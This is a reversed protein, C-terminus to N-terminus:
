AIPEAHFRRNRPDEYEQRCAPCMAFEAMTTRLRDYPAARIITLRPGCNTCNNFAYRYRRDLPDFLEALCDACTAVDPSLYIEHEAGDYSQEIYFARDGRPSQERTRLRDITALAPPNHELEYLFRDLSDNSGEIEIELTGVRNRVFGSLQHKSALGYVFPRFGVGQVVGSVTIARRPM